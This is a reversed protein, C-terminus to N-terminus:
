PRALLEVTRPDDRGDFYKVLARKFLPEDPVAHSFLTMSSRLKMDDPTGFIQFATKGKVALVLELCEKLRAGLIPHRWYALAEEKSAIGFKVAMSSRGLGQLQPFVFWMWHSSKRGATLEARVDDYVRNQAEVFRQLDFPSEM